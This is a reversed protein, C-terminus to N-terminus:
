GLDVGEEILLNEPRMSVMVSLEAKRRVEDMDLQRRAIELRLWGKFKESSTLRLFANKKNEVQSRADRGEAMAGSVSHIIRVGSNVKNQNQGGKGGARFTQIEFDKKTLSFLLEKKM